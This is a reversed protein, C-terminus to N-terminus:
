RVKKVYLAPDDDVNWTQVKLKQAKAARTFSAKLGRITQGDSPTVKAVQGDKLTTVVELAAAASKSLSKAPKPAKSEKIYGVQM